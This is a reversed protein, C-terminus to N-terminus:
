ALNKQRNSPKVCFIKSSIRGQGTTKKRIWCGHWFDPISCSMRSRGLFAIADFEANWKRHLKKLKEFDDNNAALSEFNRLAKLAAEDTETLLEKLRELDANDIAFGELAAIQEATEM